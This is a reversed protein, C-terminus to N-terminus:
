RAHILQRLQPIPVADAHHNRFGHVTTAKLLSNVIAEETADIAAEFLPSLADEALLALPQTRTASQAIRNTTSFAIAYDGSGNSATSGVRAMGLIARAALRRLQRADLPADTAVVIMCSGDASDQPVVSNHLSAEQQPQLKNWVPVGAITLRGGFNTQVLVGITFGGDKEPLHRSSTGIGGKWGFAITGTGAGVSGEVVPGDSADNIARTVDSLKVHFGRIDNLWGDNTEGVLANSRPVNENGPQSITWHAVASAADFVSLTNTLVIPTEIQGLENVQTSGVLKGFANYAFIAGAVKDQFLNGAHPLIATVGTRVNDGSILTVQGVLVGPVDTIANKPGSDYLGFTLGLDRARPRADASSAAPQQTQASLPLAVLTTALTLRLAFTHMLRTKPTHSITMTQTLPDFLPFNQFLLCLFSPESPLPSPLRGLNRTHGLNDRFSRM